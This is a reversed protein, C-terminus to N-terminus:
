RELGLAMGAVLCPVAIVVIAAVANLTLTGHTVLWELPALVIVLVGAERLFEGVMRGIQRKIDATVAPRCAVVTGHHRASRSHPNDLFQDALRDSLTSPKCFIRRTATVSISHIEEDAVREGVAERAEGAVLLLGDLRRGEIELDIRRRRPEAEVREIPRYVLAEPRHSHIRLRRATPAASRLEVIGRELWAILADADDPAARFRAILNADAVKEPGPHTM